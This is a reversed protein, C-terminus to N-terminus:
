KDKVAEIIMDKSLKDWGLFRIARDDITVDANPKGFFIEDYYVGHKDLWDLTVKGVNQMVKGINHQQTKMNRATNIIIEHGDAVLSNIMDLAGPLLQVDAYSEHEKKITCITGDLDICIRLKKTMM